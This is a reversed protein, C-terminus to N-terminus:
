DKKDDKIIGERKMFAKRRYVTSKALSKDENIMEEVSLGENHYKLIKWDIATLMPYKAWKGRNFTLIFPKSQSGGFNRCKDFNVSCQVSKGELEFKQDPALKKLIIHTDVLRLAMNSGSASGNSKNTHHFYVIVVGMTKLRMFWNVLGSWDQSKNEEISCLASINDLFLVPYQGKREKIEKVTNEILLRGKAAGDENNTVALREFGFKFGALDLDDLTLIFLNDQRFIIESSNPDVISETMELVRERIDVAPMEGEVYLVPRPASRNKWHLFDLGSSFCVAMQMGTMSKGSGYDGSIQTVTKERIIPDLMFKPEPYKTQVMEQFSTIPYHKDEDIADPKIIDFAPLNVNLYKSLSNLGAVDHNSDWQQKQYNLKEIRNKIETDNTLYCLREVYKRADDLNIEADRVLAGALRLHAEDRQGKNKDPWHRLLETFVAILRCHQTLEIPDAVVPEVNNLILRDGAIISQTSPLLEIIKGKRKCTYEFKKAKTDNPLRYIRQTNVVKGNVLKGIEFTPPLMQMFKHALFSKDDPDIAFVKSDKHFVGLRESLLLEETTWDKSWKGKKTKPKKDLKPNSSKNVPTLVFGYSQFKEINEKTVTTQM